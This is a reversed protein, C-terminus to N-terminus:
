RAAGAVRLAARVLPVQLPLRLLTLAAEVRAARGRGRRTWADRAHVVNAPWVALLLAAAALGGRRRSAPRLLAAAVALEVLGSGLTWARAPGPLSRPVIPDFVTPRLLHGVGAVGLLVALGRGRPGADAPAAPTPHVARAGTLPDPARLQM